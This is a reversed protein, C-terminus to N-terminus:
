EAPLRVQWVGTRGGDQVGYRLIDTQGGAALPVASVRQDIRREIRTAPDILVLDGREEADIDLLSLLADPRPRWAYMTSREAVRTPEGGDDPIFWVPGEDEADAANCCPAVALVLSGGDVRALLQAPRSFMPTVVGTLQEIYHLTNDLDARAIWRGDPLPALPWLADDQVLTLGRPVATYELGPLHYIRLEGKAPQFLVHGQEALYLPSRDWNDIYGEGLSVGIGTERDHLVVLSPPLPEGTDLDISMSSSTLVYRGTRSATFDGVDTRELTVTHDVLDLSVLERTPRLVLLSDGAPAILPDVGPLMADVPLIVPVSTDRRPDDPFPYFQLAGNYDYNAVPGHDTWTLLCPIGDAFVPHPALPGSAAFSFIHGNHAACALPVGPWRAVTFVERYQEDLRTPSEGCPGVTWRQEREPDREQPGIELVVREGFQRPPGLLVQDAPLELLRTPGQVGCLEALEAPQPEDEDCASLILLGIAM